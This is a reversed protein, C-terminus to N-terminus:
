GGGGFGVPYPDLENVKIKLMAVIDRINASLDDICDQKGTITRHYDLWYTASELMQALDHFSRESLPTQENLFEERWQSAM